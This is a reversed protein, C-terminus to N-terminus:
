GDEAASAECAGSEFCEVMGSGAARAAKGATGAARRAGSKLHGWWGRSKKAVKPAVKDMVPDTTKEAVQDRATKRLEDATDHNRERDRDSSAHAPDACQLRPQLDPPISASPPGSTADASCDATVATAAVHVAAPTSGAGPAAHPLSTAGVALGAVLVVGGAIRYLNM